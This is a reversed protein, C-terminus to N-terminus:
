KNYYKKGISNFHYYASVGEEEQDQDNENKVKKEERKGSKVNKLLEVTSEHRCGDVIV